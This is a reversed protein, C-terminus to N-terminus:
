FLVPDGATYVSVHTHVLVFCPGRYCLYEYTHVLVLSIVQMIFLYM